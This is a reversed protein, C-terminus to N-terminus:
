WTFRVRLSEAGIGTPPSMAASPAANASPLGAGYLATTRSGDTSQWTADADGSRNRQRSPSRTLEEGMLPVAESGDPSVALSAASFTM